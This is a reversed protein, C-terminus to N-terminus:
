FDIALGKMEWDGYRTPEPGTPGGHETTGDPAVAEASRRAAAEILAQRASDSIPREPTANPVDVNFVPAEPVTEETM